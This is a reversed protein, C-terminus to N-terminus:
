VIEPHCEVAHNANRPCPRSCLRRVALHACSRRWIPPANCEANEPRYCTPASGAAAPSTHREILHSAGPGLAREVRQPQFVDRPREARVIVTQQRSVGPASGRKRPRSPRFVRSGQQLALCRLQLNTTGFARRGRLRPLAGLGSWFQM